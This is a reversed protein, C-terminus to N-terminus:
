AGLDRAQAAAAAAWRRRVHLKELISHVHHKVTAVSIHMASAIEKNSLARGLFALVERERTTLRELASQDTRTSRLAHSRFLVAAVRPSCILEDRCVSDIAARLEDPGSERSLYGAAGAEACALVADTQEDVGFAIVRMRPEGCALTRLTAPCADRTMDVVAVDPLPAYLVSSLTHATATRIDGIGIEQLAHRLGERLLRVGSVLLICSPTGARADESLHSIRM